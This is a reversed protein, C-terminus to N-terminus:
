PRGAQEAQALKTVINDCWEGVNKFKQLEAFNFRIKFHKEVAVVLEIHNLSDWDKVDNATTEYKMQISNDNLVECFIRNVDALVEHYSKPM